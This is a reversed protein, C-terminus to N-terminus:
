LLISSRNESHSDSTRVTLRFPWNHKTILLLFEDICDINFYKVIKIM